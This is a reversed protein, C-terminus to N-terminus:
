DPETASSEGALPDTPADAADDLPAGLSFTSHGGLLDVPTSYDQPYEEALVIWLGDPHENLIDNKTDEALALLTATM